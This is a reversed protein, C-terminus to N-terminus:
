KWMLYGIFTFHATFSEDGINSFALPLDLLQTLSNHIKPRMPLFSHEFGWIAPDGM